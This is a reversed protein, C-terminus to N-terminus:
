RLVFVSTQALDSPTANRSLDPARLSGSAGHAGTSGISTRRLSYSGAGIGSGSSSASTRCRPRHDQGLHEEDLVQGLPTPIMASGTM